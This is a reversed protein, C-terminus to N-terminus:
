QRNISLLTEIREIHDRELGDAGITVIDKIGTEARTVMERHQLQYELVKLNAESPDNDRASIRSRLVDPPADCNVVVCPCRSASALQLLEQRQSRLLFTADVIVRHGSDIIQAAIQRLRRYTSHTAEASYIGQGTASGSDADADLAFLQKRLVDSRLRIAALSEVLQTAITSKGSGSLGHMLVIGRAQRSAWRDALGIYDIARAFASTTERVAPDVGLAEVKARVLARYVVYYRILDIADYDSSTELYHSIFRWAYGPYGRAEIDMTVFAAESATDIWRLEANFEICDFPLVQADILAMNGLHLDGHCDRVHGDARRREFREAAVPNSRYWDRLRAYAAPMSTPPIIEALQVLNEGSWDQVSQANGYRASADALESANHLDSVRRAMADIIAPTLTGADAHASLLAQQSFEQMRVAYEIVAGAGHLRPEDPSGRIAAVDLYIQPAFRQNLAM